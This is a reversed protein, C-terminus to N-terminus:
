GEKRREDKSVEKRGEKRREGYGLLFGVREDYRVRLELTVISASPIREARGVELATSSEVDFPTSSPKNSDILPWVM